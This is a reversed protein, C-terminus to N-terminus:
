KRMVQQYGLCVCFQVGASNVCLRGREPDSTRFEVHSESTSVTEDSVLLGGAWRYTQVESFECVRLFKGDDRHDGM